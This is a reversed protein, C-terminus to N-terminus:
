RLSQIVSGTHTWQQIRTEPFERPVQTLWTAPRGQLQTQFFGVVLANNIFLARTPDIKGSGSLRGLPSRM